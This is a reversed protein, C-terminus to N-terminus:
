ASSNLMDRLDRADCGSHLTWTLNKDDVCDKPVSLPVTKM